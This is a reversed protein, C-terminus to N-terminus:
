VKCTVYTTDVMERDKCTSQLIWCSASSFGQKVGLGQTGPPRTPSTLKSLKELLFHSPSCASRWTLYICVCVLCPIDFVAQKEVLVATKVGTTKGWQQPKDTLDELSESCLIVKALKTISYNEHKVRDFCTKISILVSINKMVKEHTCQRVRFLAYWTWNWVDHVYEIMWQLNKESIKLAFTNKSLITHCLYRTFSFIHIITPGVQTHGHHINGGAHIDSFM